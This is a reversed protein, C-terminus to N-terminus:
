NEQVITNRVDPTWQINSDRSWQINSDRSWQINSDRSWFFTSIIFSLFFPGFTDM